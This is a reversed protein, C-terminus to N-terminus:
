DSLEEEEQEEDEVVDETEIDSAETEEPEPESDGPVPDSTTSDEKDSATCPVGGCNSDLAACKGNELVFGEECEPEQETEEQGSICPENSHDVNCFPLEDEPCFEGEEVWGGNNACKRLVDENICRGSEDDNARHFGDPCSQQPICQGDENRGFGDPCDGNEDPNCAENNPEFFCISPEEEDPENDDNDNDRFVITTHTDSTTSVFNQIINQINVQNLTQGPELIALVTEYLYKDNNDMLVVIDLLYAKSALNQSVRGDSQSFDINTTERQEDTIKIAFVSGEAPLVHFDAGKALTLINQPEIEFDSQTDIEGDSQIAKLPIEQLGNLGTSVVLEPQEQALVPVLFMSAPVLMTLFILLFTQKM